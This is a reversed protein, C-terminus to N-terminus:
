VRRRRPRALSGVSPPASSANERGSNIDRTPTAKLRPPHRTGNKTLAARLLAAEADAQTAIGTWEDTPDANKRRGHVYTLRYKSPARFEAATRYGASTIELFGLEVCQRVALAVSARRLGANFFDDYTCVLDGNIARGHRMHELELRDLVRRANDPLFRWAISERVDLRISIFPGNIAGPKDSRV